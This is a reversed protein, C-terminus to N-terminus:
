TSAVLVRNPRAQFQRASFSPRLCSMRAAVMGPSRKALFVNAVGAFYRNATAIFNIGNTLAHDLIRNSEEEPAVKFGGIDEDKGDTLLMAGLCFESVMVGTRALSRSQM